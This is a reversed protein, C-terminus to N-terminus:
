ILGWKEFYGFHWLAFVALLIILITLIIPVLPNKKKSFPDILNVKSNAPLVALHTLTKGFIINITLRANVAWGNADLLPALNRKRLKMYALVMSPLSIILIIGLIALPIQWWLLKFFGTLISVIVSGIAGLALSIAAFIGVFKAIDFPQAPPTGPASQTITTIGGDVKSLAASEVAKDKSSAIKEIQGSIFKSIKKYPSWFAQRISIPNDVIKIITADWDNGQRDYFIANRGVVIDDIDGDTLAAVITMTENRSRSVCNCYVLCIGSNGAMTNHKPMDSVKICLDCCRQDIYLKGVQFIAEYDPSYFDSFNVYNKLLTYLDCYYRTLKDVKIINNAETELAKDQDVLALLENKKNETIIKRVTDLGLSEVVAGAKSNIWDTYASFKGSIVKWEDDTLQTKYPFVQDVVLKKFEDILTKWSPNVAENLPLLKETDMRALPLAAIEHTCDSLNKSNIAEYGSIQSSLIAKSDPDYEALRCRLFYDEIKPKVTLYADLAKSTATGFPLISDKNEEAIKQWNSYEECSQYFNHIIDSNVGAIGSRDTVPVFCSIINNILDKLDSNDTSNATIIGDGNFKTSAFINTIDSTDTITIEKSDPKGLNALIQKASALLQKGEENETNIASLPLSKNDNVLEDPNNILSVIWKIAELIEPVRIRNDKDTDLLELTKSDIELGYVPCSLVTWLKQDLNGLFRVDNGSTLNVRNVGGVRSFQWIHNGNNQKIFNTIKKVSTNKISEM